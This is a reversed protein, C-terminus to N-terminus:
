VCSLIRQIKRPFLRLSSINIFYQIGRKELRFINLTKRFDRFNKISVIYILYPLILFSGM